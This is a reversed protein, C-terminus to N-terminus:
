FAGGAAAARRMVVRGGLNKSNSVHRGQIYKTHIAESVCVIHLLNNRVSVRKSYVLTIM